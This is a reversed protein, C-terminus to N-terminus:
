NGLGSRRSLANRSGDSVARRTGLERALDPDINALSVTSATNLRTQHVKLCLRPTSLFFAAFLSTQPQGIVKDAFAFVAPMVIAARAASKVAVSHGVASSQRRPFKIREAPLAGRLHAVL